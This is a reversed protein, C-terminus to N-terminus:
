AARRRAFGALGLLGTGFLWAAAPVPVPTVEWGIDQLAALDLDTFVKRTGTTLDPDMAVEQSGAGNVTSTLGNAWHADGALPVNGGFLATAHAGTFAGSAVKNSWSDATGFGLLHGMEHLAVSYFDNMGGPLDDSSAPTQDFYWNSGSDFTISGGWPGFDDAPAGAQGRTAANDLFDQTGGASYGGPGGQGLTGGGLNRAGVYVVLTDAAVSYNGNGVAVWDGTDPRFFAASFTNVGSPTIATLHDTLRSEFFAGAANLTNKANADFFGTDYTYDFDITIAQSSSAAGILLTAVAFRTISKGQARSM